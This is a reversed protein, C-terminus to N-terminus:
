CNPKVLTKLVWCANRGRHSSSRKLMRKKKFGESLPNVEDMVFFVGDFEAQLVPKLIKTRLLLIKKKKKKKFFQPYLHATQLQQL